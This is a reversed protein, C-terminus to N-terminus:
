LSYPTSFSLSRAITDVEDKFSQDKTMLQIIKKVGHLVTTHDKRKLLIAIEEFKLKLERRLLFMAIQRARAIHESRQSGKIQSQKLNYYTCIGQIIDQPGIKKVAGSKKTKFYQEIEDLDVRQNGGLSQAYLSLLSGELARSDTVQEAIVKAAEIELEIHKEKAKILLIATRLEFDPSQVDVTLGGSFRSRLRDELNKIATPPKDSTLIIQGGKTVIANFTHFIEEQVSVKGAIFQVDDIILLDLHRYKQRFRAMAKQRIGEILENTFQDGPCFYVRKTTDKELISRAISQALHTKGVGVGGWLFFPNYVKGLNESISKSAAYAVQNSQSVAFNDFSASGHLGAKKFVDEITPQFTLLPTEASGGKKKVPVVIIEVAVRKKLFRTLYKEITPIKKQIFFKFGQSECRLVIKDETLETPELQKLISQIIPNEEKDSAVFKIFDEWLVLLM